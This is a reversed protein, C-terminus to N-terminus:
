PLKTSHNSAETSESQDGESPALAAATNVCGAPEGLSGSTSPCASGNYLMIRCSPVAMSRCLALQWSAAMCITWSSELADWLPCQYTFMAVKATVQMRQTVSTPVAASTTQMTLIRAVFPSCSDKPIVVKPMAQWATVLTYKAKQVHQISRAAMHQM